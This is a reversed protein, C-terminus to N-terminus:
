PIVLVKTARRDVMARYGDDIDALSVTLDFVPSPDLAGIVVDLLLERLYTRAPALGRTLTVNRLFCATLDVAEHPGGVLSIAGGDACVALATDLAGQEGVAEVVLEAGIGGTADLIQGHAEEGRATILDTAGFGKGIRLRGEHHGLLFVREVGAKYAALAACLGVPGDGVVAVTAPATRGTAHIAHYGTAMVDALALVAPIGEDGEHMPVRLLTGDAFPVRIAEAQAGGAQVGWMGGARCSTPMGRTCQACTGDSFWFPAVVLEGRRIRTVEVGVDEVVGVFEHGCWPGPVLGPRGSYARVDMGCIGAAVVRVVADTPLEVVPDPMEGVFLERPGNLLAARMEGGGHNLDAHIM